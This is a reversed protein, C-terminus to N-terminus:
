RSAATTLDAAQAVAEVVVVEVLERRLALALGTDRQAFPLPDARCDFSRLVARVCGSSLYLM